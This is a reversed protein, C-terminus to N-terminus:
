CSWCLGSLSGVMPDEIRARATGCKLCWGEWKCWFDYASIFYDISLHISGLILSKGLAHHIYRSDVLGQHNNFWINAILRYQDSGVHKWIDGANIEIEEYPKDSNRCFGYQDIYKGEHKICINDRYRYLKM